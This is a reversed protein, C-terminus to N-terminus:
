ATCDFALHRDKDIQLLNEHEALVVATLTRLTAEAFEDELRINGSKILEFTPDSLNLQPTLDFAVLLYGGGFHSRYLALGTDAFHQSTQM